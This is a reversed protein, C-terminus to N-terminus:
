RFIFGKSKEIKITQLMVGNQRELKNKIKFRPYMSHVSLFKTFAVSVHAINEIETM